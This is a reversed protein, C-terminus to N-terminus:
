KLGQNDERWKKIKKLQGGLIQLSEPGCATVYYPDVRKGGVRVPTEFYFENDGVRAGVLKLGNVDSNYLAEVLDPDSVPVCVIGSYLPDEDNVNSIDTAIFWVPLGSMSGQLYGEILGEEQWGEFVEAPDRYSSLDSEAMESSFSRDGGLMETVQKFVGCGIGGFLVSVALTARIAVVRWNERGRGGIGAGNRESLRDKV